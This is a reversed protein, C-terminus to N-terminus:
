NADGEWVDEEVEEEVEEEFFFADLFNEMSIVKNNGLGDRMRIIPINRQFLFAIEIDGIKGYIYQEKEYPFIESTVIKFVENMNVNRRNM